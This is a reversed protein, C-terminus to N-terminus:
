FLEFAKPLVWNPWKSSKLESTATWSQLSEMLDKTSGNFKRDILTSSSSELAFVLIASSNSCRFGRITNTALCWMSHILWVYCPKWLIGFRNVALMTANQAIFDVLGYWWRKLLADMCVLWVLPSSPCLLVVNNYDTVATGHNALQDYRMRRSVHKRARM